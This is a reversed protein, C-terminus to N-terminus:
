GCSISDTNLYQENFRHIRCQIIKLLDKPLEEFSNFRHHITSNIRRLDSADLAVDTIGFTNLVASLYDVDTTMRRFSIVPFKCSRIVQELWELTVALEWVDRAWRSAPHANISSLLVERPDRVIVGKKAVDLNWFTACRRCSNVEGYFNRRFNQQIQEIPGAVPPPEHLVIWRNSRNMVSALFKTGSRGHGSILFSRYDSM